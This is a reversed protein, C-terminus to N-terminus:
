SPSTPKSTGLLTTTGGESPSGLRSHSRSPQPSHLFLADNTGYVDLWGPAHEDVMLDGTLHSGHECLLHSSPAFPKIRLSPARDSYRRSTPRGPRRGKGRWAGNGARGARGGVGGTNRKNNHFGVPRSTLSAQALPARKTAVKRKTALKPNYVRFWVLHGHTTRTRKSITSSSMTTHPLHAREEQDSVTEVNDPWFPHTPTTQGHKQVWVRHRRLMRSRCVSCLTSQQSEMM